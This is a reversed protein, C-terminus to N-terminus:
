MASIAAEVKALATSVKLAAERNLAEFWIRFPSEGASTHYEHIELM